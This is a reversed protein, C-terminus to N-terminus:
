GVLFKRYAWVAMLSAGTLGTGTFRVQAGTGNPGPVLNLWRASGSHSFINYNATLGGAGTLKWNKCDVTLTQGGAITGSYQFWVPVNLAGNNYYSEVRPNTMPGTLFFVPDEIPATSGALGTLTTLTPSVPVPVSPTTLVIDQWFVEPIDLAVSFKGLPNVGRTSFDITEVVEAFCQRINGDPLTHRIDLLGMTGPNTFVRTLTDLNEFFKIRNTTGIPVAGDADCGRVWMPLILQNQEYKKQQTRVSGHRGAVEINGTRLKAVKLRGALSEVNYALTNLITGNVSLLEATTVTM